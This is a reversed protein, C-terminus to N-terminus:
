EEEDGENVFRNLIDLKISELIGAATFQDLEAQELLLMIEEYIKAVTDHDTISIHINKGDDM